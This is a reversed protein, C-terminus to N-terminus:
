ARWGGCSMPVSWRPSPGMAVEREARPGGGTGRVECQPAAAQPSPHSALVRLGLWSHSVGAVGACPPLGGRPGRLPLPAGPPLPRAPGAGYIARPPAAAPPARPATAAAAAATAAKAAPVTLVASLAGESGRRTGMM